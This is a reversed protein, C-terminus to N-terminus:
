YKSGPIACGATTTRDVMVDSTVKLPEDYSKLIASATRDIFYKGGARSSDVSDGDRGNPMSKVSARTGWIPCVPKENM